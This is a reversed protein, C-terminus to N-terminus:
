QPASTLQLCTLVSNSNTLLQDVEFQFHQLDQIWCHKKKMSSRGDKFIYPLNQLHILGKLLQVGEEKSIDEATEPSTRGQLETHTKALKSDGTRLPFWCLSWFARGWLLQTFELLTSVGRAATVKDTHMSLLALRVPRICPLFSM